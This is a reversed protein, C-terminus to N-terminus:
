IKVKLYPLAWVTAVVSASQRVKGEKIMKLWERLPITLIELPESSSLKQKGAKKCGVALLCFELTPCSRPMHYCVGLNKIAKPKHGTEEVLERLGAKEISENRKIGGTPLQLITKDIAHQYERVAIVKNNETVALIRVGDTEGHFIYEEKRGTFHNIFYQRSIFQGYKSRFIEQSKGIKNWSKVALKKNKLKGM